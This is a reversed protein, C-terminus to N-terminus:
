RLNIIELVGLLSVHIFCSFLGFLQPDVIMLIDATCVWGPVAICGHLAYMSKGVIRMTTYATADIILVPAGEADVIM